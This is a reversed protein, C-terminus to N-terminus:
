IQTYFEETQLSISSCLIIYLTLKKENSKVLLARTIRGGPHELLTLLRTEGNLLDVEELPEPPRADSPRLDEV